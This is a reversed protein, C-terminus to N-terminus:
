NQKIIHNVQKNRYMRKLSVFFTYWSLFINEVFCFIIKKRINMIDASIKYVEPYNDFPIFASQRFIQHLVLFSFHLKV